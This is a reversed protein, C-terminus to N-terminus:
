VPLFIFQHFTCSLPYSSWVQSSDREPPSWSRDHPGESLTGRCTHTHAHSHIYSHTHSRTLIYSHTHTLTHILTHTLTHTHILTHTHTYTHTHTLTHTHTHTHTLTHTHTHIFTHTHTLSHSFHIFYRVCVSFSVTYYELPPAICTMWLTLFLLLQQRLVQSYLSSSRGGPSCGLYHSSFFLTNQVSVIWVTYM